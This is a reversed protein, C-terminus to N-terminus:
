IFRDLLKFPFLKLLQKFSITKRIAILPSLKPINNIMVRVTVDVVFLLVNNHLYIMLVRHHESKIGM